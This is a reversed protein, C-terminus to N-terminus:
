QYSRNPNNSKFSAFDLICQCTKLSEAVQTPIHIKFTEELTFVILAFSLEVNTFGDNGVFDTIYPTSGDNTTITHSFDLHLAGSQVILDNSYDYNPGGKLIKINKRQKPKLTSLYESLLCLTMLNSNPTIDEVPVSLCESLVQFLKEKQM